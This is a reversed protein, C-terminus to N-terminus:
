CKFVYSASSTSKLRESDSTSRLGSSGSTLAQSMEAADLRQSKLGVARLCHFFEDRFDQNYYCFIISNVCTSAVCSFYAMLFWFPQVTMSNCTTPLITRVFDNILYTMFLPCCLCNYAATMTILMRVTQRKRRELELVKQEVQAGLVKRKKVKVAVLLYCVASVIANSLSAIFVILYNYRKTFFDNELVFSQM